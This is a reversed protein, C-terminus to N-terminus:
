LAPARAHLRKAWRACPLPALGLRALDRGPAGDKVVVHRRAVRRARALTDPSLPAPSGLRRVLDFAAGAARPRRFMPDFVVVDFSRAPLRALVEAADGAVVEIRRAAASPHRRLGESVFAALAPSAEVGVVHGGPGIVGAAVFADMGLGLTADLVADGPRLAAAELFADRTAREGAEHRRLRLAAMGPEWARAVGGAWLWAREASVVLVAEAGCAAALADLSRGGRPELALGHRAAASRAQELDRPAGALPTTVAIRM